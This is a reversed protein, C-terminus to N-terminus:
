ANNRLALFIFIAITTLTANTFLFLFIYYPVSGSGFKEIASKWDKIEPALYEAVIVYTLSSM